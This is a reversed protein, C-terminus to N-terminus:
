NKERGQKQKKIKKKEEVFIHLLLYFIYGQKQIYTSNAKWLTMRNEIELTGGTMLCEIDVVM